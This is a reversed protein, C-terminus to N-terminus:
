IEEESKLRDMYLPTITLDGFSSNIKEGYTYEKSQLGDVFVFSTESKTIISFTAWLNYLKENGFLFNIKIPANQNFMESDYVRGKKFFQLNLNLDKVVREFLSRSKLLEIENELSKNSSGVLGLEKFASLENDDTDGILITTSAAYQNPTYRLYMKIAFFAVLLSLVFWKWHYAYKEIEERVNITGEKFNIPKLQQNEQM